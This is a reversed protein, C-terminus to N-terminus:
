DLGRSQKVISQIMSRQSPQGGVARGMVQKTIALLSRLRPTSEEARGLREWKLFANLNDPFNNIYAPEDFVSDETGQTFYSDIVEIAPDLLASRASENELVAALAESIARLDTPFGGRSLADKLLDIAVLYFLFRTQHRTAKEAGRGFGYTNTGQQLLYAAFLDIAGFPRSHEADSNVIRKFVSGDPLFPPNKGFALGAEGLWGSGYIKILDAANASKIYNKASTSHSQLAKQSDWGGRQIELYIDYRDGLEHQWTRFDGTLALFDKERVANQSNTYRTIAQLLAEGTSGVKVIKTVVVGRKARLKWAEVEPNVGTGGSDLRQHFVEWITRSTQCGNVIYPEVLKVNSATQTYESVVITIGNNYLGFREPADRLTAQMGKNVKGRGGLFRRVNKEYIQDLDGTRERYRHLFDYLEILGISGVLLDDGSGVVRADIEITLANAANAASEEQLRSHITAISITEVDFIPGLRGRGMTRLDQLARQETETLPRETAFVLILRDAVGAANRFNTLRELTGEALSSLKARKGDLTEIVKHGEALLTSVGAFASGYKSQVLYWTHGSEDQADGSSDPGTDLLAIDIGGDGAGDCLVVDSAQESADVWQTVLKLAFRRGLERTSPSGEQVSELWSTRFQEFDVSVADM